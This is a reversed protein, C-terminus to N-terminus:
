DGSSRPPRTRPESRSNRRRSPFHQSTPWAPESPAGLLDESKDEDNPVDALSQGDERLQTEIWARLLVAAAASDIRDRQRDKRVGAEALLDAAEVTTLREDWLCVEVDSRAAACSTAFVRAEAASGGESGDMNLPLGILLREADERVSAAIVGALRDADNTSHVAPLTRIAIGLADCIALGTRRSGLDVALTRGLKRM